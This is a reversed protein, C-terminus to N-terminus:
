VVLKSCIDINLLMDYMVAKNKSIERKTRQIITKRLIKQNIKIEQIEVKVKQSEM